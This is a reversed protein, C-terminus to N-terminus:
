RRTRFLERALLAHSLKWASRTPCTRTSRSRTGWAWCARRAPRGRARFARQAVAVGDRHARRGRRRRHHPLQGRRHQHHHRRPRAGAPLLAPGRLHPDPQHRPVPDRVDLRQADHGAAAPRGAGRDGAHVARVRLEDVARVPGTRAVRRGARGAHDPLEGAHRLHRRVRPADRGGTPLGFPVTRHLPDGRDRGRGRPGRKAAQVVDEDIDGTAVILYIWPRTPPDGLTAVLEDRRARNRDITRIGHAIATRAAKEARDADRGTPVTYRVQGALTAEALETLSAFNHERLAHFVPLAAGGALGCHERVTDVVRNVWPVDGARHGSDAGTIGALRLTAREVAVTTHAHALAIVPETARAALRRATAVVAPDLNLLGTMATASRTARFDARDTRRAATQLGGHEFQGSALNQDLWRLQAMWGPPPAVPLPVNVQTSRLGRLILVIEELLDRDARVAAAMGQPAARARYADVAIDFQHLRSQVAPLLVDPELPRALWKNIEQFMRIVDAHDNADVAQFQALPGVVETKAVDLLLPVLRATDLNKSIAGAEFNVWPALVTDRTVVVIGFSVNRLEQSMEPINRSGKAIDEESMFPELAQVVQRLWTRLFLAFDRAPAGSWSIFVKV